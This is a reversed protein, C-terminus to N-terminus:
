PTNPLMLFGRHEVDFRGYGAIVSDQNIRHAGWLQDWGSDRDILTELDVTEGGAWLYAHYQPWSTGNRTIKHIDLQGVIESRDNTENARGGQTDRPVPLAQMGGDVTDVFPRRDSEGCVDGALNIGYGRSYPHDSFGLTGLGGPSSAGVLGGNADLELSWVVAQQSPTGDGRCFGTVQFVSGSANDLRESTSAGYGDLPPLVVPGEVTVNGDQDTVARWAVATNSGGDPRSIGVIVGADNIDTVYSVDDGDLPSLPTPDAGPARLFFATTYTTQSDAWIVGVIEALNNIAFVEGPCSTYTDAALDYHWSLHQHPIHEVTGIAEGVDNIDAVRSSLSGTDGADFPVILYPVSKNGGDSDGGGGAHPPKKAQAIITTTSICAVTALLTLFKSTKRFHM